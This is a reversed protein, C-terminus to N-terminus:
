VRVGGVSGDYEARQPPAASLQQCENLFSSYALASDLNGDEETENLLALVKRNVVGALGAPAASM